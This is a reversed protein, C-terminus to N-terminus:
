EDEECGRRLRDKRFIEFVQEACALPRRWIERGTFRLVVVGEGQLTRDRSRDSAAQEPTREHWEHGDCEIVIQLADSWMWFDFRYEGISHQPVVWLKHGFWYGPDKDLLRDSPPGSRILLDIDDRAAVAWMAALMVREIPSEVPAEALIFDMTDVAARSVVKRLERLIEAETMNPAVLGEGVAM